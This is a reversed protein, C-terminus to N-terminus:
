HTEKWSDGIDYEGDLPCRFGFEEGAKVIGMRAMGGIDEAIEPRCEIQVEDHINGVFEYDIGPTYKEQMDNDMIVLAKKMVLAGASQLLTNLSSYIARVQLHRGDLGKLTGRHKAVLEVKNKLEKLAPTKKLFKSRLRKGHKQKLRKVAEAGGKAKAEKLEEDTVTIEGLLEDGAGYLFAYIFRKAQKRKPLGAAKQNETHIDGELLVKAYKGNDYKAMYHALCRLELGSADCGVLKWGPRPKFLERCEEGYPKGAAPVQAVNPNSHTMRGTVTGIPNVYGHIRHDDEVLKLWASQGEAVYGVLKSVILYESIKEAEPYPLKGLITESVKPQGSDTFEKPEWGYKDILRKYIHVRSKPNFEIYKIKQYRCGKTLGYRSNNVKSTKETGDPEIWTGFAEILEEELERQRKLLQAYLKEAGDVDFWFGNKIQRSIIRQVDQELDLAEKAIDKSKLKKYLALNTRVDQECYEEMEPSWQQWDTTKGFDDKHEGLRQGYAELSHRGKLSKDLRGQRVLKEDIEWIEPYVLRAWVLTDRVMKPKFEPYFKQVAPIDYDIINHGIVLDARKLHEVGKPVKDLPYHHYEGDTFDYIVITHITTIDNIDLANTEIDFLVAHTM